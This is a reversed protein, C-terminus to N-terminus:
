PLKPSSSIIVTFPSTFFPVCAYGSLCVRVYVCFVYRVNEYMYVNGCVWLCVDVGVGVCMWVGVDVCLCM